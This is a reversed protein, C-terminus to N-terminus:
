RDGNNPSSVKQVLQFIAQEVGSRFPEEKTSTTGRVDIMMTGIMEADIPIIIEITMM